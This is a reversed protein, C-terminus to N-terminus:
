GAPLRTESIPNNNKKTNTKPDFLAIKVVYKQRYIDRWTFLQSLRSGSASQHLLSNIVLVILDLHSM